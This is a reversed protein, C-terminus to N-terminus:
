LFKIVVNRRLSSYFASTYLYVPIGPCIIIFWPCQCNNYVYMVWIFVKKYMLIGLGNELFDLRAYDRNEEIFRWSGEKEHTDLILTESSRFMRQLSLSLFFFFSILKRVNRGNEPLKVCMLFLGKSSKDAFRARKKGSMDGYQERLWM